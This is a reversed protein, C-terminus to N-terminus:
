ALGIRPVTTHAAHPRGGTPEHGLVCPIGASAWNPFCLLISLLESGILLLCGGLGPQSIAMYSRLQSCRPYTQLTMQSSYVPCSTCRSTLWPLVCTLDSTHSAWASVSNVSPINHPCKSTLWPWRFIVSHPYSILSTSGPPRHPALLGLFSAPGPM